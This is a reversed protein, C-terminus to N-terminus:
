LSTPCLMFPTHVLLNAPGEDRHVASAGRGGAPSALCAAPACPLGASPPGPPRRFPPHACSRSVCKSCLTSHLLTRPTHATRAWTELFQPFPAFSRSHDSTLRPRRSWLSSRRSQTSGLTELFRTGHADPRETVRECALRAGPVQRALRWCRLSVQRSEQARPRKWSRPHHSQVTVSVMASRERTNRPASSAPVRRLQRPCHQAPSM